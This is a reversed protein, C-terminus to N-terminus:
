AFGINFVLVVNKRSYLGSFRFMGGDSAPLSFDPAQDGVSLCQM